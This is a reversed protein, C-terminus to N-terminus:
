GSYIASGMSQPAEGEGDQQKVPVQTWVFAPIMLVPAVVLFPTGKSWYNVESHM